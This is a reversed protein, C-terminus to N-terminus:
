SLSSGGDPGREKERCMALIRFVAPNGPEVENIAGAAVKAEWIAGKDCAAYGFTELAGIHREQLKLAKSSFAGAATSNGNLWSYFAMLAYGDADKEKMRARAYKAAEKDRGALVLASIYARGAMYDKGKALEEAEAIAEDHRGLSGLVQVKLVRDVELLRRMAGLTELAEEDRGLGHRVAARARLVKDSDDLPELVKEADQLSGLSILGTAVQYRKDPDDPIHSMLVGLVSPYDKDDGVTRLMSCCTLLLMPDDQNKSALDMVQVAAEEDKGDKISQGIAKLAEASDMAVGIIPRLINVARFRIFAPPMGDPMM